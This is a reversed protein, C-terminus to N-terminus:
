GVLASRLGKLGSRKPQHSVVVITLSMAGPVSLDIGGQQVVLMQGLGVIALVAAFPLMGLIAGPTMSSRAFLLAFVVLLAIAALMTLLGRSVPFRAPLFGANRPRRYLRQGSTPCPRERGRLRPAWYRGLRRM